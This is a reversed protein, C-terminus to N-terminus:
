RYDDEEHPHSNFDGYIIVEKNGWDTMRRTLIHTSIFQEGGVDAVPVDDEKHPHSNFHEDIYKLEDKKGDDEEHPHSNFYVVPAYKCLRSSWM